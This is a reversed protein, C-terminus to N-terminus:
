AAMRAARRGPPGRWKSRAHEDAADAPVAEHVEDHWSEWLSFASVEVTGDDLDRTLVYAARNGPTEVYEPVGTDQVYRVYAERYEARVTGRWLRAISTRQHEIDTMGNLGGYPASSM